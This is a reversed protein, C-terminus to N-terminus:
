TIDTHDSTTARDDTFNQGNATSILDGNAAGSGTTGLKDHTQAQPNSTDSAGGSILIPNVVEDKKFTAFKVSSIKEFNIFWFNCLVKGRKM